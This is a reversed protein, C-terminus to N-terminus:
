LRCVLIMYFLNLCVFVERLLLVDLWVGGWFSMFRGGGAQFFLFEAVELLKLAESSDKSSSLSCATPAVYSLPSLSSLSTGQIFHLSNMWFVGAFFLNVCMVRLVVFEAFAFDSQFVM